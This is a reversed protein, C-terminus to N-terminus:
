AEETLRLAVCDGLMRRLINLKNYLTQQAKQLRGALEALGTNDLYFACILERGSGELEEICKDMAALRTDRHELDSAREEALRELCAIGEDASHEPGKEFQFVGM